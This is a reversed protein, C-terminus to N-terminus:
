PKKGKKKKVGMTAPKTRKKKETPAAEAPDGEPEIIGKSMLFSALHGPLVNGTASLFIMKPSFRGPRFGPKLKYTDM